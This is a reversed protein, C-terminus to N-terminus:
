GIERALMESIHSWARRTFLTKVGMKRAKEKIKVACGHNVYNTLILVVDVEQPIEVAM